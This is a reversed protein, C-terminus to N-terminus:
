SALPMEEDSDFEANPDKVWQGTSDKIWGSLSRQFDEKAKSISEPTCEKKPEPCQNELSQTSSSLPDSQSPYSEKQKEVSVELSPKRNLGKLYTRVQSASSPSKDEEPVIKGTENMFSPIELIRKRSTDSIRRKAKETYGSNVLQLVSCDDGGDNLSSMQVKKLDDLQLEQKRKIYKSLESIHKKGKRHNALMNITDFIPRQICVLCTLKGNSLLKAEDEPIHTGLIDVVRKHKLLSVLNSDDGDRKFSM